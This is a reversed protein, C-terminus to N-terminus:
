SHASLYIIYLYYISLIYIIYLYYLYYEWLSLILPCLGNQFVCFGGGIGKFVGLIEKRSFAACWGRWRRYSRELAGLNPLQWRCSNCSRSSICNATVKFACLLKEDNESSGWVVQPCCGLESRSGPTDHATGSSLSHRCCSGQVSQPFSPAPLSTLFSHLCLPILM